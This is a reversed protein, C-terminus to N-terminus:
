QGPPEGHRNDPDLWPVVTQLTRGEPGLRLVAAGRAGIHRGSGFQLPPAAAVRIVPLQEFAAVFRSRDLDRGTAKLGEVLLRVVADAAKGPEEVLGPGALLLRGVLDPRPGSLLPGALAKPVLFVAAPDTRLTAGVTRDLLAPDAPGVFLVARCSTPADEEDLPRCEVREAGADRLQRALTRALTTSRDSPGHLLVVRGEFGIRERAALAALVRAQGAHGSVVAFERAGSEGGTEGWPDPQFGVVPAAGAGACGGDPWPVAPAVDIVAFVDDSVADAVLELRRRFVGGGRNVVEIAAAVARSALPSSGPALGIRVLDVAVGADAPGDDLRRLFAVLDASDAADIQYRPMTPGLPRGASDFGLAIARAFLAPSYPPRNQGDPRTLGYPPTLASWAINAPTVDGEPRGRGDEGHCQVCPLAAAPVAPGDGIRATILRGAPSRGMTYIRRGRDISGAATGPEKPAGPLSTDHALPLKGQCGGQSALMLLLWATLPRLREAYRRM